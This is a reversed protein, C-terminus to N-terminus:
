RVPNPPTMQGEASDIKSDQDLPDSIPWSFIFTAGNGVSDVSITGGYAEVQKKSIALGMGTGETDLSVRQYMEFIKAHYEAPIGPGNDEIEFRCQRNEVSMRVEVRGGGGQDNYSVANSILNLLVQTLPTRVTFLLPIEPQVSVVFGKPMLDIMEVISRVEAAIDVYEPQPRVKGARSYELLDNLLNDMKQVRQQMKDLHGQAVLPLIGACDEKVWHALHNIGRLPSRLDHSAIYAFNDLEHNTEELAAAKQSLEETLKRTRELLDQTEQNKHSFVEAAQAMRGIEDQRGIAPIAAVTEGSALKRFTKTLQLVPSLIMQSLRTSLVVGLLISLLCTVVSVFKATQASADRAARSKVGGEAVFEQLRNAYYAFESLEGALVVDSYYLYGRTAQFARTALGGYAELEVHLSDQIEELSTGSQVAISNVETRAQALHITASKFDSANNDIIYRALSQEASAISQVAMLVSSQDAIVKEFKADPSSLAENARDYLAAQMRVILNRVVEGKAPLDISVLQKRLAREEAALSLQGGFSTLANQMEQLLDGLDPDRNQKRIATTEQNLEDQLQLAAKLRSAAGTDVYRQTHAKLQQVRRFVEAIESSTREAREYDEFNKLLYTQAGWGSLASCVCVVMLIGCTLFIKARLSRKWRSLM